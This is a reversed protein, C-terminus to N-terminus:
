VAALSIQGDIDSLGHSALIHPRPCHFETHSGISSLVMRCHPQLTPGQFTTQGANRASKAVSSTTHTAATDVRVGVVVQEDDNIQQLLFSEFLAQFEIRV